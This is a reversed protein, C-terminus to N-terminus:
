RPIGPASPENGSGGPKRGSVLFFLHPMIVTHPDDLHARAAADLEDLETESVLGLELVHLQMSRVLDAWVTRRLHGPPYVRATAETEIEELGAERLLEPVRRGIWPDAGNRSFVAPFVEFLRELAPCPPYCLMYEADPEMTAVWGGPRALRTMEAVVQAPEPVNVLLTRAHVLDFSGPPLGTHRADTNIIEVCM